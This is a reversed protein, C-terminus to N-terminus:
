DLTYAVKTGTVTIQGGDQLAQVITAVAKDDLPPTFWSKISSKLTSLKAPKSSKRLRDVVQAVRPPTSPVWPPLPGM